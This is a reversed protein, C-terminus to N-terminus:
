GRRERDGHSLEEGEPVNEQSVVIHAEEEKV